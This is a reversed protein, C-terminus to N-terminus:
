LYTNKNVAGVLLVAIHSTTEIIMIMIMITVTMLMMMTVASTNQVFIVTLSYFRVFFVIIVVKIWTANLANMEPDAAQKRVAQMAPAKIGPEWIEVEANVQSKYIEKDSLLDSGVKESIWQRTILSKSIEVALLKSM